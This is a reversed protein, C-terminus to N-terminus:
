NWWNWLHLRCMEWPRKRWSSKQCLIYPEVLTESYLNRCLRPLYCLIDILLELPKFSIDIWINKDVYRGMIYEACEDCQTDDMPDNSAVDPLQGFAFSISCLLIYIILHRINMDKISYTFHLNPNRKFVWICHKSQVFFTQWNMKNKLILTFVFM